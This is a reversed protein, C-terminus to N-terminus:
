IHNVIDLWKSERLISQPRIIVYDTELHLSFEDNYETNSIEDNIFNYISIDDKNPKHNTYNKIKYLGFYNKKYPDIESRSDNLDKKQPSFYQHLVHPVVQTFGGVMFIDMNSIDYNNLFFSARTVVIDGRNALTASPLHSYYLYNNQFINIFIRNFNIFSSNIIDTRDIKYKQCFERITGCVLNFIKGQIENPLKSFYKKMFDVRNCTHDINFFQKRNNVYSM